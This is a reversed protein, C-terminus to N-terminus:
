GHGRQNIYAIGQQLMTRWAESLALTCEPDHERVTRVMTDIWVDYMYPTVNLGQKGHTDAIRDLALNASQVGSHKMILTTVAKRIMTRQKELDSESFMGAIVRDAEFLNKYFRDFFGPHEMCRRYSEIIETLNGM